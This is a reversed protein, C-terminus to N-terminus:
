NRGVYKENWVNYNKDRSTWYQVKKYREHKLKIYNINGRCKQVYTIYLIFSKKTSMDVLAIIQTM